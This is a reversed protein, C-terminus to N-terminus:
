YNISLFMYIFLLHNFTGMPHRRIKWKDAVEKCAKSKLVRNKMDKGEFDTLLIDSDGGKKFVM